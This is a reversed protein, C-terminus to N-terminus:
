RTLSQRTKLCSTLTTSNRSRSVRAVLFVKGDEAHFDRVTTTEFSIKEFIVYSKIIEKAINSLYNASTSTVGKVDFFKKYDHFNKM